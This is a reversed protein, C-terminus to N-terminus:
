RNWNLRGGLRPPCLDECRKPRHHPIRYGRRRWGRGVPSYHLAILAAMYHDQNLICLGMREPRPGHIAPRAQVLQMQVAM